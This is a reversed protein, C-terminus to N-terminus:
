LEADQRKQAASRKGEHGDFIKTASSLLQKRWGYYM